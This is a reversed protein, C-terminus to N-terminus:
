DLVEKKLKKYGLGAAALISAPIGAIKLVPMVKEMVKKYTRYNGIGQKLLDAEEKLGHAEMVKQLDNLMKQKLEGVKPAMLRESALPSKALNRQHRGIDTQLAFAPNYKGQTVERMMQATSETTPLYKKAEMLMEPSYDFSSLGKEKISKKVKDLQHTGKIRRLGGRLIGLGGYIEPAHEVGKQILTDMMTPNDSVGFIDGYEEIDYPLKESLKQPKRSFKEGPLFMFPRGLQETSQEMGKVINYPLNHVNRGLHTLGTLINAPLKRWFGKEEPAESEPEVRYQEFKNSNNPQQVRYKEFKDM